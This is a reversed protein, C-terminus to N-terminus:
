GPLFRGWCKGLEGLLGVRHTQLVSAFGMEIKRSTFKALLIASFFLWKQIDQKDMSALKTQSIAIITCFKTTDNKIM